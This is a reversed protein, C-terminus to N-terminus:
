LGCVAADKVSWEPIVNGERRLGSVRIKQQLTAPVKAALKATCACPCRAAGKLTSGTNSPKGGIFGAGAATAASFGATSARGTAAGTTSVLGSGTGPFEACSGPETAALTEASSAAATRCVGASPPATEAPMGGPEAPSGGCTTGAADGTSAVGNAVGAVSLCDGPASLALDAVSESGLLIMGLWAFAGTGAACSLPEGDIPGGSRWTTSGSPRDGDGAAGGAAALARLSDSAVPRWLADAAAAGARLEWSAAMENLAACDTGGRSISSAFVGSSPNGKRTALAISGGWASLL